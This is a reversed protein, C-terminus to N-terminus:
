YINISVSQMQIDANVISLLSFSSNGIIWHEKTRQHSLYVVQDFSILLGSPIVQSIGQTKFVVKFCQVVRWIFIIHIRLPPGKVRDSFSAQFGLPPALFQQKPKHYIPMNKYTQTYTDM